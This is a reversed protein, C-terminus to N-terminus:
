ESTELQLPQTREVVKELNVWNARATQNPLEYEEPRCTFVVVQFDDACKYMLETLWEMRKPDSQVLQDDLVLASKVAQAVALRILTALQDRTGISLLDLERDSGDLSVSTGSLKPGLSVKDYRGRTLEKMNESIPVVLSNGLHVADESEAEKLTELLLQWSAYELEVDQEERTAAILAEEAESTKEDVYQGGVQELAGEQKSFEQRLRDLEKKALEVESRAYTLQEEDVQSTSEPLDALAKERDEVLALSATMDEVEAAAERARLEGELSDVRQKAANRASDASRACENATEVAKSASDQAVRAEATETEAFGDLVELEASDAQLNKEYEGLLYTAREFVKQPDDPLKDRAEASERKQAELEEKQSELQGEDVAIKTELIQAQEEKTAIRDELEQRDLEGQEVGEFRSELEELAIGEPLALELSRKSTEAKAELEELQSGAHGLGEARAELNAAEGEIREVEVLKESESRCSSELDVRTSVGFKEFLPASTREWRLRADAAEQRQDANGGSVEIDAADGIQARLVGQAEFTEPSSIKRTETPRDGTDISIEIERLPRILLSLEIQVKAEAIELERELAALERLADDTPLGLAAVESRFTRAKDKMAGAQTRLEAANDRAKNASTLAQSSSQYARLKEYLTMESLEQREKKIETRATEVLSRAESLQKELSSIRSGLESVEREKALADKALEVERQADKQRGELELVSKEIEQRRIKRKQEVDDSELDLIRQRAQQHETQAALLDAEAGKKTEEAISFESKAQDIEAQTTEVAKHLGLIRDREETAAALLRSAAVWAEQQSHATEIEQLGGAAESQELEAQQLLEQLKEMELKAASSNDALRQISELSEQRLRIREQSGMWPSGKARSKKGTATYAREVKEQARELVSRFVPSEAIAQLSRAILDKGSEDLDGELGKDLIASVEDQSGLLATSLFTDPWGAARAKSGGPSGAGWSLLERLKGDVERGKCDLSFSLGDRSFELLSSGDAGAGFSKQVRWIRQEETEFTLTVRPPRDDHWDIFPRHRASSHPLLLAARIAQLLTSKGLENPGYLVNLNPELNVEAEKIGAFSRVHLKRLWM